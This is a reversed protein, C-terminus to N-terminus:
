FLRDAYRAREADLRGRHELSEQVLARGLPEATLSLIAEQVNDIMLEELGDVPFHHTSVFRIIKPFRWGLEILFCM